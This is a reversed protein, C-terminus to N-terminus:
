YAADAPAGGIRTRVEFLEPFFTLELAQKLFGVGSSGGTGRKFGIIRMVTRMHRFRWLQFESELDVLDECLHYAEWHAATDAYIREFVPVLAEDAVHPRTWDRELHAAPVAHGHRALYRLFEDYLGPAELAGALMAHAEPDHAFVKLMGANKNGLLFEITRYQASQFGSSPGLLDRFEAYESPTLTELVSWMATLQRLVVKCRAFIKQCPELRDARLHAVAARLEHIMLKLWLESVQHQVIFLMEDHHPPDSLPQQASLLRELHLYGGYTMRGALETHIGAELARENKEISM